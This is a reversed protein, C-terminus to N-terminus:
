GPQSNKIQIQVFVGNRNEIVLQGGIQETLLKVLRLGMSETELLNFTDPLGAGNDSVTLIINEGTSELGIKIIGDNRDKFAYKLSNSILENLILGLSETRKVDLKIDEIQTVLKVKWKQVNYTEFLNKALEELYIRLNILDFDPSKYLHKYITSLTKIRSLADAFVNQSKEDNLNEAAISLLGSLVNLNNKIRHQLERLMLEKEEAAKKLLNELEKQMSINTNTTLRFQEGNIEFLKASILGIFITGDKKRCPVELSIIEGKENLETYMKRRDEDNVWLNLDEKTSNHGLVEEPEYGFLQSFGPNIEVFVGNDVRNISLGVPNSYFFKSFKEESAKLAEEMKKRETINKSSCMVSSVTGDGKKIPQITTVYYDLAKKTDVQVEIVKTKGTQIVTQMASFRKEAEIASFVDWIKKGIIETPERNVGQAFATNVYYYTGDAGIIFIPDLSEELLIRYKSESERLAEEFQRRETIDRAAAYILNGVPYSRWEIWKYSGDKCRYRNVFNLVENQSELSVLAAFTAQLDDPHILDLFKLRKLEDITYGLTKEWAPNLHIFYGDTNAICFLDIALEFFNELEIETKKLESESEKQKTIDEVLILYYLFNNEEDRIISVTINGWVIRNDKTLYKKETKYISIKGESLDKINMTDKGLDDPHTLEKFTLLKLEEQSYGLMNQFVTNSSIFNFKSNTMAMALPGSEFIKRFKEESEKLTREVKEREDIDRVVVLVCDRSDIIAHRMNIDAWFLKGGKKRAHWKFTQPIGKKAAAIKKLAASLTYPQVGSSLDEISIKLFEEKSYNYLESARKNIDLIYGNVSDNIFIADNVSDYIEQFKEKNLRLSEEFIRRDTIDEFVTAFQGKAPTFVSISFYKNMPPFFTEFYYPEGTKEVIAYKDLYPPRETQYVESALKGTADKATIGTIREFSPNAEIITYNVANGNSDFILEHLAVGETMEKFLSRFKTESQRLEREKAQLRSQADHLKFAMKISALLVTSQADKVVYGYSTIKETKDVVEKETHASLFLVPIDNKRLIEQAAQTGDIGSGLDIDMLILDIKGPNEEVVKIAKEGNSSHLVKYGERKLWHSETAIILPDDEVILITKDKEKM